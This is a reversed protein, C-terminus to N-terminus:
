TPSAFELRNYNLDLTEILIEAREANLEGFRWKKPWAHIIKWKMIPQHDDNLLLIDMNLPVVLLNEAAAKCWATFFSRDEPALLGRKLTLDSFRRRVPLKHEFRNEGGEKVNETEIEVDLGAVSQFKIDFEPVPDTYFRQVRPNSRADIHVSFHFGVNQYPLPTVM